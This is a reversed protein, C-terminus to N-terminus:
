SVEAPVTAALHDALAHVRANGRMDPHSLLWLEMSVDPILDTIRVLREEQAAAFIPLVAAGAGAAAARLMSSFSDIRLRPRVAPMARAFWRAAKIQSLREDFGIWPLTALDPVKGRPLLSPSVFVAYGMSALKRGVLSEPPDRTIRIALDAERRTLDLNRNSVD